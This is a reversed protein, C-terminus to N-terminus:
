FHDLNIIFKSQPNFDKSIKDDRNIGGFIKSNFASFDRNPGMVMLIESEYQALGIIVSKNFIIKKFSLESLFNRLFILDNYFFIYNLNDKTIRLNFNKKQYSLRKMFKQILLYVFFLFKNQSKNLYKIFELLLNNELFHCSLKQKSIKRFSLKKQRFNEVLLSIESKKRIKIKMLDFFFSSIFKKPIFLFELKKSIYKCILTEYIRINKKFFINSNLFNVLNLIRCVKCFFKSNKETFSFQFNKLIPFNVLYSFFEFCFLKKKKKINFNLNIILFLIRNRFLDLYISFYKIYPLKDALLILFFIISFINLNEKEIKVSTGRLFYETFKIFLLIIKKNKIKKKLSFIEKKKFFILNALFNISIKTSFVKCNENRTLSNKIKKKFQNFNFLFYDKLHHPFLIKKLGHKKEYDKKSITILNLGKKFCKKKHFKLFYSMTNNFFLDHLNTEKEGFLNNIFFFRTKLNKKKQFFYSLELFLVSLKKISKKIYNLKKLIVLGLIEMNVNISFLYASKLKFYNKFFILKKLFENKSYRFIVKKNENHLKESFNKILIHKTFNICFIKKLNKKFIEFFPLSKKQFYNQKFNIKNINMTRRRNFSKFCLSHIRDKFKKYFNRTSKNNLFELFDLKHKQSKNFVKILINVMFITRKQNTCVMGKLLCNKIEEHIKSIKKIKM